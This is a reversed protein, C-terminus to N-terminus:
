SRTTPRMTKHKLGLRSAPFADDFLGRPEYALTGAYANGM